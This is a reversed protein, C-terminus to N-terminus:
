VKNFNDTVSCDHHLEDIRRKFFLDCSVLQLNNDGPNFGLSRVMGFGESVLIYCVEDVLSSGQYVLNFNVEALIYRTRQLTKLGGRLVPGEFGQVDLKLYDVQRIMAREELFDDLRHMPVQIVRHGKLMAPQLYEQSRDPPLLSNTFSNSYLYFDVMRNQEGLAGNIATFHLQERLGDLIGFADPAPEFCIVEAQPFHTLIHKVTEGHHAGIDLVFPREIGNLAEYLCANYLYDVRERRHVVELKFPRLAGNVLGKVFEKGFM